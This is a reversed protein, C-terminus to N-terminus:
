TLLFYLNAEAERRRTLGKMVKGAAKNWKMFENRISNDLPNINVKKLLTSSSLNGTGVNYAFSTLAGFQNDTIDSTVLTEVKKYFKDVDHTLYDTAEQETCVDGLVVKKGGPYITTGYGITIPEGGTAPDVYAKLELGEFSKILDITAKNIM